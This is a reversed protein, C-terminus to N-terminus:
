KELAKSPKVDTIVTKFPEESNITDIDLDRTLRYFSSKYYTQRLSKKDLRYVKKENPPKGRVDVKVLVDEDILLKLFDRISSNHKSNENDPDDLFECWQNFTFAKTKEQSILLNKTKQMWDTKDFNYLKLIYELRKPTKEFVLNLNEGM